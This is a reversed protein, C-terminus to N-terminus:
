RPSIIQKVFMTLMNIDVNTAIENWAINNIPQIM